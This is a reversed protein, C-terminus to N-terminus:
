PTSPEVSESPTSAEDSPPLVTAADLRADALEQLANLTASIDPMTLSLEQAQMQSLDQHLSQVAPHGSDYYKDLWLLATAAAQRFQATDRRVLLLRASELKLRLNERLFYTQPPTMLTTDSGSHHRIEVLQRLERWVADVGGRWGEAASATETTELPQAPASLEHLWEQHLRLNDLNRVHESLRLAMGNIDAQRLDRLALIDRALQERLALFRPDRSQTLRKDASNLASLASAIDQALVLRQNAINLLYLVEAINWDEENAATKQQAYVQKLARELNKNQNQLEQLRQQIDEQLRKQLTLIQEDLMSMHQTSKNIEAQLLQRSNELQQWLYFTATSAAALLLLIFLFFWVGFRSKKARVPTPLPPNETDTM